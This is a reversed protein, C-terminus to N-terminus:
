RDVEVIRLGPFNKRAARKANWKSFYGESVALVQGNSSVLRVYWPQLGSGKFIQVVKM